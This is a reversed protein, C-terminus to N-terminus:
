FLGLGHVIGPLSPFREVLQSTYYHILSQDLFDRAPGLGSLKYLFLVFHSAGISLVVSAFLIKKARTSTLIKDGAALAVAVFAGFELLPYFDIRYRFNMSIATLMLLWSLGLGAGIASLKLRDSSSLHRSTAVIWCAYALLLVLFADTLLFSSPPLEVADLLRRQHDDLLFQGDSRQVVWIPFFYYVLGFPIRWINFLGYAETRPMRDAFYTNTLYLSYDAFVLPNGWRYVNIVGAIGGFIFLILLPPLLDGVITTNQSLHPSPHQASVKRLSRVVLVILVLTLAGYLGVAVSVRTLLSLGAAVAMACLSGRDFHNRVLCRVAFYVFFAALAGAWLCVEQYLTARLFTIQAGSFVIAVAFLSIIWSPVDQSNKAIERLTLLKATALTCAAVLCSLKTVDLTLGNPLLLLPLRLLAPFIGWYAYVRGERLFGESGVTQPAVDFRGQLLHELMSNFTLELCQLQHCHDLGYRQEWLRGGGYTLLLAYYPFVLAVLVALFLCANRRSLTSAVLLDKM